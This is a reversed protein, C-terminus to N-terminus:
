ESLWAIDKIPGNSINTNTITGHNSTSFLYPAPRLSSRSPGIVVISHWCSVPATDSETNISTTGLCISPSSNRAIEFFFMVLIKCDAKWNQSHARCFGVWSEAVAKRGHLRPFSRWCLSFNRNLLWSKRAMHVPMLKLYSPFPSNITIFNSRMSSVSHGSRRWTLLLFEWHNLRLSIVERTESIADIALANRQFSMLSEEHRLCSWACCKLPSDTALWDQRESVVSIECYISFM